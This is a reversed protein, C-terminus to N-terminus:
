RDKDSSKTFLGGEPFDSILYAGQPKISCRCYLQLDVVKWCNVVIAM